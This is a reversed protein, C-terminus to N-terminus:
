SVICISRESDYSRLPDLEVLPDVRRILIAFTTVDSSGVIQMFRAEDVDRYRWKLECVIIVETFLLDDMNM